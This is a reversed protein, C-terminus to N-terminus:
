EKGNSQGVKGKIRVKYQQTNILSTDFVMKFTKPIVCGPFLGLHGPRNTFMRGVLRSDKLGSFVQQWESGQSFSALLLILM